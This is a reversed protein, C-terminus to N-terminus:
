DKDDQMGILRLKAKQLAIAHSRMWKNVFEIVEEKEDFEEIHDEYTSKPALTYKGIEFWGVGDVLNDESKLIEYSLDYYNVCYKKHVEDPYEFGYSISMSQAYMYDKLNLRKNFDYSIDFRDRDCYTEKIEAYLPYLGGLLDEAINDNQLEYAYYSSPDENYEPDDHWYRYYHQYEYEEQMEFDAELLEFASSVHPKRHDYHKLSM